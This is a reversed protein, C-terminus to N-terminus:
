LIFGKETAEVLDCLDMIEDYHLDLDLATEFDIDDGIGYGRSDYDIAERFSDEVLDDTELQNALLDRLEARTELPLSTVSNEPDNFFDFLDALTVYTDGQIEKTVLRSM